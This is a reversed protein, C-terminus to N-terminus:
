FLLWVRVGIHTSKSIIGVMHQVHAVNLEQIILQLSCRIKVFDVTLLKLDAWNKWNNIAILGEPGIFDTRPIFPFLHGVLLKFFTVGFHFIIYM